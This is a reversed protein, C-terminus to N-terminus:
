AVNSIQGVPQAPVYRGEAQARAKSRLWSAKVAERNLGLREALQEYTLGRRVGRDVALRREDRNLRVGAAGSPHSLAREVAVEDVGAGRPPPEEALDRLTRRGAQVAEIPAGYEDFDLWGLLAGVSRDPDVLGALVVLLAIQEQQGLKGLLEEVDQVGGDGQVITALRAAVPLMEEALDGRDQTTLRKM